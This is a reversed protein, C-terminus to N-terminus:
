LIKDCLVLTVYIVHTQHYVVGLHRQSLHVSGVIILYHQWLMAFIGSMKWRQTVSFQEFIKGKKSRKRYVAPLFNMCIIYM